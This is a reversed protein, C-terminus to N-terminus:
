FSPGHVVAPNTTEIMMGDKWRDIISLTVGERSDVSAKGVNQVKRKEDQDLDM